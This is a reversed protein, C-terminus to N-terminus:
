HLFVGVRATRARRRAENAGAREMAVKAAHVVIAVLSVLVLAFAALGRVLLVALRRGAEGLAGVGLPSTPLRLAFDLLAFALELLGLLRTTRVALALQGVVEVSAVEVAVLSRM